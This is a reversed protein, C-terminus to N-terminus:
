RMEDGQFNKVFADFDVQTMPKTFDWQELMQSVVEDRRAQIIDATLTDVWEQVTSLAQENLNGSSNFVIAKAWLERRGHISFIRGTAALNGWRESGNYLLQASASAVCSGQSTRYGLVVVYLVPSFVTRFALPEEYVAIGSRELEARMRAQVSSMNTWCNGEVQDSIHLEISRTLGIASEPPVDVSNASLEELYAQEDLYPGTEFNPSQGFTPTTSFMTSVFLCILGMTKAQSIDLLRWSVGKFWINLRRESLLQTAM